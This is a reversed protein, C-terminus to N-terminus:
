FDFDDFGSAEKISKKCRSILDMCKPVIPNRNKVPYHQDSDNYESIDLLKSLFPHMRGCIVLAEGLDLNMLGIASILPNGNEDNGVTESLENLFSIQRSYLYIWTNCNSAITKGDDNYRHILQFMDQIALIFRINRGRAATIMNPMSRMKPLAAFEDLVFNVRIPLKKEGDMSQAKKVLAGYLQSLFMVALPYTSPNEDPLVLFLASKETALSEMKFSNRSLMDVLHSDNMYPSMHQNFTSLVCNRTTTANCVITLIPLYEPSKPSLTSLFTNMVSESQFIRDVNQVVNYLNAEGVSKANKIVLLMMAYLLGQASREWYQDDENFVPIMDSALRSLMMRGENEKIADGSKILDFPIAMPNWCTNGTVSRFDMVHINYGYRVLDPYAFDLLEGKPDAVVMSEGGRALLKVTPAIVCRTKRSGTSGIVLVHTEDGHYVKDGDYYLPVGAGNEQKTDKYPFSDFTKVITEKSEWKSINRSESATKTPKSGKGPNRKCNKKLASIDYMGLGNVKNGVM